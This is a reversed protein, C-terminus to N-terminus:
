VIYGAVHPGFPWPPKRLLRPPTKCGGRPRGMRRRGLEGGARTDPPEMASRAHLCLLPTPALFGMVITRLCLRTHDCAQWSLAHSQHRVVRARAGRQPAMRDRREMIRAAPQNAPRSATATPKGDYPHATTYWIGQLRPHKSFDCGTASRFWDM